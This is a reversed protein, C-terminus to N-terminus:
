TSLIEVKWGRTEAYRCYMRFLDAAFLAAEEGGEGQRIELITNKSDNLDKPLLLVRMSDELSRREAQLEPLEMEALERLEPDALAAEDEAIRKELGKYKDFAQMLPELQARAKYLRSLDIDARPSCLIDDIAVFRNALPELRA